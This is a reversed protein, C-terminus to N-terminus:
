SSSKYFKSPKLGATFNSTKSRRRGGCTARSGTCPSTPPRECQDVPLPNLYDHIAPKANFRNRGKGCLHLWKGTLMDETGVSHDRAYGMSVM